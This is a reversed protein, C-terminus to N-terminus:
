GEIVNTDTAVVEVRGKKADIIMKNMKDENDTQQAPVGQEEEPVAKV